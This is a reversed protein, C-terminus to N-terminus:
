PEVRLLSFVQEPALRAFWRGLKEAGRFHYKLREPVAPPRSANSRISGTEYNLHLQKSAIGTAISDLTLSRMSLVRPHIALLLERHEGLKKTLQALGSSPNTSRIYDLTEAHFLLPLVLFQYPMLPLDTVKEEQYAKGFKWILLAGLAPNQVLAVASPRNDKEM